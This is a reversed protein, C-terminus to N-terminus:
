SVCVDPIRHTFYDELHIASCPLELYRLNRLRVLSRWGSDTFHGSQIALLKLAELSSLRSISHLSADTLNKGHAVDLSRIRHLGELVFIDEDEWRDCYIELDIPLDRCLAVFEPLNALDSSYVKVIDGSVGIGLNEVADKWSENSRPSQQLVRDTPTPQPQNTPFSSLGGSLPNAQLQAAPPVTPLPPPQMAVVKSRGSTVAGMVVATIRQDWTLLPLAPFQQVLMTRLEPFQSSGGVLLIGGPNVGQARAREILDACAKVADGLKERVREKIENSNWAM